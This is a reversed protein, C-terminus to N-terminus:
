IKLQKILKITFLHKCLFLYTNIYFFTFQTKITYKPTTMLQTTIIYRPTQTMTYYHYHHINTNTTITPINTITKNHLFSM